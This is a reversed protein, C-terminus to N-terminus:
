NVWELIWTSEKPLELVCDKLQNFQNFCQVVYETSHWLFWPYSGNKILLECEISNVDCLRGLFHRSLNNHHNLFIEILSYRRRRRHSGEHVHRGTMDRWTWEHAISELRKGGWTSDRVLSGAGLEGTRIKPIRERERERGGERGRGVNKWWRRRRWRRVGSEERCVEEKKPTAGGWELSDCSRMEMRCGKVERRWRRVENWFRRVKESGWKRVKLIWWKRVEDKEREWDRRLTTVNCKFRWRKQHTRLGTRVTKFTIQIKCSQVITDEVIRTWPESNCQHNFKTSIAQIPHQINGFKMSNTTSDHQFEEGNSEMARCQEGNSEM